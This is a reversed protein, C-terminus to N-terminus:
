IAEVSPNLLSAPLKKREDDTLFISTIKDAIAIRLLAYSRKWIIEDYTLGSDILPLIFAGVITRGGFDLSNRDKKAKFQLIRNKREIEKDLGLRSIYTEAKNINSIIYLLLTAIDEEDMEKDFFDRRENIFKSSYLEAKTECTSIVIINLCESRKERVLRIGELAANIRVHSLNVDLQAIYRQIINLKGFSLPYIYFAKGGCFFEFPAELIADMIEMDLNRDTM